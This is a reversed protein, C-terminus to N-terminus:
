KLKRVEERLREFKRCFLELHEYNMIRAKKAEGKIIDIIREVRKEISAPKKKVQLDDELAQVERNLRRAAPDAPKDMHDKIAGQLAIVQRRLEEM